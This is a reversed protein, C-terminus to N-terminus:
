DWDLCFGEDLHSHLKDERGRTKRSGFGTTKLRLKSKAKLFECEGGEMERRMAAMSDPDDDPQCVNYGFGLKSFDTLLYSRKKFNHRALCLDSLLAMILDERARLQEDKMDGEINDELDRKALERLPAVRQEFYPIYMSYFNLFGLVSMIDRAIRFTPWPKLLSHKSQAPCNGDPCVDHGVFEM